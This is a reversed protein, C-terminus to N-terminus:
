KLFDVEILFFEVVHGMNRQFLNLEPPQIYNINIKRIPRLYQGYDEIPNKADKAVYEEITRYKGSDFRLFFRQIFDQDLQYNFVQNSSSM